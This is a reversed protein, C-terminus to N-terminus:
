AFQLGLKNNIKEYEDICMQKLTLINKLGKFNKIIDTNNGLYFDVESIKYNLIKDNYKTAYFEEEFNFTKIYDVRYLNYLLANGNIWKNTYILFYDTGDTLTLISLDKYDKKDEYCYCYYKATIDEIKKCDIKKDKIYGKIKKLQKKLEKHLKQQNNFHKLYLKM